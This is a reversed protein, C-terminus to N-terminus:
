IWPVRVSLEHSVEIVFQTHLLRHYAPHSTPPTAPASRPGPWPTRITQTQVSFCAPLRHKLRLSACGFTSAIPQSHVPRDPHLAGESYPSSRTTWAQFIPRRNPISQKVIGYRRARPCRERYPYRPFGDWTSRGLKRTPSLLEM